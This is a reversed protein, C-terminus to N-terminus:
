AKRNLSQLSSKKAGQVTPPVKSRGAPSFGLNIQADQIFKRLKEITNWAPHRSLGSMTEFYAGQQSMIERADSEDQHADCLAELPKIDRACLQGVQILREAYHRWCSKFVPGKRDPCKPISSLLVEAGFSEIDGHRDKRHTGDAIRLEPPKPPRGRAM